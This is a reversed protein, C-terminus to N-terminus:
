STPLVSPDVAVLMSFAPGAAPPRVERNQPGSRGQVDRVAPTLHPIRPLHPFRPLAARSLRGKGPGAKM